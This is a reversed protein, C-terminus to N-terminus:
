CNSTVPLPFRDSEFGVPPCTGLLIMEQFNVRLDANWIFLTFAHLASSLTDFWAESLKERTRILRPTDNPDMSLCDDEDDEDMADYTDRHGLGGTRLIKYYARKLVGPVGYNRGLIITEVGNDLRVASLDELKYSWIERSVVGGM